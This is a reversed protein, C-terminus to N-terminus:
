LALDALGATALDQNTVVTTIGRRCLPCSKGATTKSMASWCAACTCMHGCPAFALAPADCMCIVCEDVPFLKLSAPDFNERIKIGAKAVRYFPAKGAQNVLDLDNPGIDYFRGEVRIDRPFMCNLSNNYVNTFTKGEDNTFSFFKIRLKKGEKVCQLTIKSTM